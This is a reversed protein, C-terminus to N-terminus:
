RYNCLPSQPSQSDFTKVKTLIEKGGTVKHPFNESVVPNTENNNSGELDNKKRRFVGWLYNKGQFGQKLKREKEILLSRKSSREEKKGALM